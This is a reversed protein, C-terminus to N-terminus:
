VTMRCCQKSYDNRIYINNEGIRCFRFYGKKKMMEDWKLIENERVEVCIVRPGNSALDYDKLVIYDMGEIDCDLFDPFGNPCYQNIIKQLTTVPLEVVEKIEADWRKAETESFTNLGCGDSFKFFPLTGEKTSIGINLVIDEPRLIAFVRAACSDPEVCIGRCGQEYMLVTNSYLYPHNAGIDLYTPKKIGIREFIAAIVLDDGHQGYYKIGLIKRFAKREEELVDVIIKKPPVNLAILQDYMDSYIVTTIVVIEYEMQHIKEVPCVGSLKKWDNDILAIVDYKKSYKEKNEKYRNGIGFLVARKM